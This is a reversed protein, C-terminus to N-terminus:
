RGAGASAISAAVDLVAARVAPSVSAPDFPQGARLGPDPPVVVLRTALVGVRDALDRSDRQPDRDHPSVLVVVVREAAPPNVQRLRALSTELAFLGVAGPSSVVVAQDCRAIAAHASDAADDGVDILTLANDAGVRDLLDVVEQRSLAQGWDLGDVIGLGAPTRVVVGDDAARLVDRATSREPLGHLAALSPTGPQADVLLSHDDRLAAFAAGVGCAITTVGVGGKGAMFTVIRRDTQRQRVANVVAREDGAAEAADPRLIGFTVARLLRTATRPAAEVPVSPVVRARGPVPDVSPTPERVAPRAVVSQQRLQEEAFEPRLPVVRGEGGSGGDAPRPPEDVHPSSSSAKRGATPEELGLARPDIGMRSLDAAAHQASMRTRAREAAADAEVDHEDAM